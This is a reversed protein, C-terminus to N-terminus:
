RACGGVGLLLEQHVRVRGDGGYLRSTMERDEPTNGEVDSDLLLLDCRGVKVRWVKAYISRPAHRGAGGGAPREKRHGNGDAASQCRDRSVRRAALRRSRPAPPFIGPWLVASGSWRFAWIPRARSTIAPWFEWAAPISPCRNTCASNPPFILWRSPAAARRRPARGLHAGIGRIRAPPSLRLQHPQAAGTRPARKLKALPYENLLSVPSHNLQSWRVPDLDRFLGGSDHDWSWWLNRALAWLREQVPAIFRDLTRAESVVPAVRNAAETLM